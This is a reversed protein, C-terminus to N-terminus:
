GAVVDVWVPWPRLDAPVAGAFTTLAEATSPRDAPNPELLAGVLRTLASAGVLRPSRAPGTAPDFALQGTLAERLTAGLAYHDMGATIPACDELEPAAYGPTGVPRRPPQPTGIRRASGFDILVPRMDRLVVNAPKVDVHAIGRHHLALLGTLLQAGLLAVEPEELPGNVGLEEELTPGDVYEIVIHPLEAATGDRYLRPLAPHPNGELAAVERGLSRAARPHAVQHPRPLKLVAPCWLPVSWVLWTECRLGVGLRDWARYGGPLESGPACWWVPAGDQDDLATDLV